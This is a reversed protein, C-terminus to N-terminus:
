DVKENKEASDPTKFLVERIELIAMEEEGIQFVHQGMGKSYPGGLSIWDTMRGLKVRDDEHARSEPYLIPLYCNTTLGEWITIRARIWLLDFLTKPSEISIERLSEFPIWIYREHVIAELFFSLFTDIDRFGSFGKGDITGSIIPHEAEIKNYLESAEDIKKETLKGWAAFYMELYPPSKTLFSPRRIGQLVDMREKEAHILNKYVQVGIEASSDRAAIADLHREAKDWEGYFSLVQFLITRRALDSPASKVEEILQKRAETLRGAKILDKSDM